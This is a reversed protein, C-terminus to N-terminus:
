PALRDLASQAARLSDGLGQAEGRLDRVLFRCHDQEGVLGRSAAARAQEAVAHLREACRQASAIANVFAGEPRDRWTRAASLRAQAAAQLHADALPALPPAALGSWSAGSRRDNERARHACAARDQARIEDLHRTFEDHPAHPM